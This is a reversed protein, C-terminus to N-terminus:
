KNKLNYEGVKTRTIRYAFAPASLVKGVEVALTRIYIGSSVTAECIAIVCMKDGSEKLFKKWGERIETQRFDGEVIKIVELSKEIMAGFTTTKYEKLILSKIEGEIIPLEEPLTGEKAHMFLPQGDVPKSSFPPYSFVTRNKIELLAKQTEEESPLADRTDTILGLMDFSDTAVGFLVEFSYTKDLKLFSDKEKCTEGTLLLVLGDAMPDLRGAYTIPLDTALNQKERFRDLLAALTEGAKKYIPFIGNKYQSDPLNQTHNHSM